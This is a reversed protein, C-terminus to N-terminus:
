GPVAMPYSGLVKFFSTNRGAEELVGAIGPDAASGEFDVYFNYEWPSGSRPRSEIKTLNVAARGFAATIRHLAGPEHRISFIISTKDKKSPPCAKDGLVLFRTHNNPDDAIDERIVPVGYIESARRSAICALDVSDMKKIMPVSGATDYTPVTRMGEKQIFRRCQGLAQPHSYVTTIKGPAGTGILCHEIRHYIEGVAILKTSYLLDSSEGVSGEISNEIPLVSYDTTGRVTSDLM